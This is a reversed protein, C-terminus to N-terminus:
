CRSCGGSSLRSTPSRLCRRIRRGGEAAGGRDGARLGGPAATGRAETRQRYLEPHRYEGDQAEQLDRQVVSEFRGSTLDSEFIETDLGVEEALEILKEDSYTGGNISGQNQYLVDHYEWFKGQYQAARAAQAATRSEQGLYAFDRWEFRLTGDEIYREIL